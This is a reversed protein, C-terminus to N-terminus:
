LMFEEKFNTRLWERLEVIIPRDHTIIGMRAWNMYNQYLTNKEQYIERETKVVNKETFPGINIADKLIYLSNLHRLRRTIQEGIWADDQYQATEFTDSFTEEENHFSVEVTLRGNIIKKSLIDATYM